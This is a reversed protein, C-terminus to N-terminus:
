ASLKDEVVPGYDNVDIETEIFHAHNRWKFFVSRLSRAYQYGLMSKFKSMKLKKLFMSQKITNMISSQRSLYLHDLTLALKQSASKKILKAGSKKARAFFKIENMSYQLNRIKLKEFVSGLSFIAERCKLKQAKLTQLCASKYIMGKKMKLRAGLVKTKQTQLCRNAWRKLIRRTQYVLTIDKFAEKACRSAKIWRSVNKWANLLNALRHSKVLNEARVCNM